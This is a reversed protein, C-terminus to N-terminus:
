RSNRAPPEELPVVVNGSCGTSACALIWILGAPLLSSDFVSSGGFFRSKPAVAKGQMSSDFDPAQAATLLYVLAKADFFSLAM